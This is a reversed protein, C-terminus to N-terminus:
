QEGGPRLWIIDGEADLTPMTYKGKLFEEYSLIIREPVRNQHGGIQTYYAWSWEDFTWAGLDEPKIFYWDCIRKTWLTKDTAAEFEAFWWRWRMAEPHIGRKVSTYYPLRGAVSILRYYNTVQPPFILNSDRGLEDGNENTHAAIFTTFINKHHIPTKNYDTRPKGADARPKDSRQYKGRLQGADSRLKRGTKGIGQKKLEEELEDLLQQRTKEAM